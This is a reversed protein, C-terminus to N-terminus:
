VDALRRGLMWRERKICRLWDAATPICGLDDKVHQEGVYRVPIQKGRSNRIRRGFVQECLFIGESHHRLARHRVDALHGKTADFWEHIKIYDSPRGGFLRASRKAHALPHAM